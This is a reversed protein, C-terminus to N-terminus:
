LWLEPWVETYPIEGMGISAGLNKVFVEFGHAELVSQFHGIRAYDIHSCLMKMPPRASISERRIRNIPVLRLRRWAGRRLRSAPARRRHARQRHPGRRVRRHWQPEVRKRIRPIWVP